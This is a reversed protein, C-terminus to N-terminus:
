CASMVGYSVNGMSTGAKLDKLPINAVVVMLDEPVLANSGAVSAELDDDVMAAKEDKAQVQLLFELNWLLDGMTPRESGNQGLCKKMEENKVKGELFPDLIEEERPLSPDIVPRGYLVELMVVGFSYVDSKETLQQRTLYEPDLYGFSGKVATSVHTQDLDPGTKSLGFDAVKAMFSEDLLINASKVDRHIVARASGTHLYHLGTTAGVCIELRQRWSLKKSDDDDLDYLHNKLTGKEMFEYVIIMESNEDCLGILSVLHRHRSQPLM